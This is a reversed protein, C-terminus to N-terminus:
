FNYVLTIGKMKKSYNFAFKLNKLKESYQNVKYKGTFYLVSGGAVAALSVFYGMFYTVDRDVSFGGPNNINYNYNNIGVLVAGLTGIGALGLGAKKQKTFLNIKRECLAQYEEKTLNKFFSEKRGNEYLIFNVEKKFVAYDPGDPFDYKKFTIERPGIKLVKAQIQKGNRLHIVDQSYSMLFILFFVATLVTKKM